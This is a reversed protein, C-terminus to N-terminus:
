GKVEMRANVLGSNSEPSVTISDVNLQHRGAIAQIWGLLDDFPVKELWIRLDGDATPEYRRFKIGFEKASAVTKSLLTNADVPSSDASAIALAAKENARLWEIDDRATQYDSVSELVYRASPLVAGVIVLAALTLGMLLNFLLQDRDPLRRYWALCRQGLTSELLRIELREIHDRLVLM